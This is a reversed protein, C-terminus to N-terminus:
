PAPSVPQERGGASTRGKEGAPPAFAMEHEWEHRGVIAPQLKQRGTLDNEYRAMEAFLNVHVVTGDEGYAAMWFCGDSMQELHFVCRGGVRVVLEDVTGDDYLRVEIGGRQERRDSPDSM